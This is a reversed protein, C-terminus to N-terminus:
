SWTTKIKITVYVKYLLFCGISLLVFILGWRLFKSWFGAEITIQQGNLKLIKANHSNLVKIEVTDGPDSSYNAFQDDEDKVVGTYTAISALYVSKLSDITVVTYVVAGGYLGSSPGIEHNKKMIIAKKIQGYLVYKDFEMKLMGVGFFFFPISLIAFLIIRFIKYEIKM